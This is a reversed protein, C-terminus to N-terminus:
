LKKPGSAMSRWRIHRLFIPRLIMLHKFISRSTANLLNDPVFSVIKWHYSKGTIYGASPAFPEYSGTSSKLADSFPYISCFTFMGAKSVFQGSRNLSIEEWAEPFAVGFRRDQRNKYMFGWEQEAREGKLWFGEANLLLLPTMPNEPQTGLLRILRKGLYNVLVIGQKEGEKDYLPTGFRIMPKLPKEIEGKEINLDFPSVFVEDRNLQYTDSFYYRKGKNQLKDEPVIGPNGNNFNVRVIEMGTKNLFRIQDYFRKRKSFSYFNESLATLYKLDGTSLFGQLNTNDSLTMLDSVVSSLESQIKKTSTNIIDNQRQEIVIKFS